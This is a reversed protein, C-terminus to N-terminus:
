TASMAAQGECLLAYQRQLEVRTAGTRDGLQLAVEDTSAVVPVRKGPRAIALM